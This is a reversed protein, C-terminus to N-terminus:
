RTIILRSGRHDDRGAEVGHWGAPLPPGTLEFVQRADAPALNICGHSRELGFRNHWFAGHIALSGDFYQTWPVDEIRYRDEGADPGLNAMTATRQKRQIRYFGPPTEHGDMGSSILTAFVPGDGRYVVLAQESLDVHIWVEDADFEFRNTIEPPPPAAVSLFWSLFYREGELVHMMREDFRERRLWGEVLSHREIPELDTNEAWRMTGDARPRQHRPRATRRMWVLPLTLTTQEDARVGQFESGHRRRLRERWIYSGQVTRLFEGEGDVESLPSAVYFGRDLYRRVRAPRAPENPLDGEVLREARAENEELLELYRRAYTWSARQEDPSPPRHYEGTMKQHVRYYAYPLPSDAAAPTEALDSEREEESIDIGQGACVWGRPHIPYWGTGCRESPHRADRLRVRAGLRLTGLRRAEPDPRSRITLQLGTVMGHLPYRTDLDDTPPATAGPASTTEEPSVPEPATRPMHAGAPSHDDSCGTLMIAGIWILSAILDGQVRSM